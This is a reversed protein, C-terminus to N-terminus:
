SWESALSIGYLRWQLVSPPGNYTVHPPQLDEDMPDLYCNKAHPQSFPGLFFLM